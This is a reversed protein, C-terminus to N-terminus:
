VRFVPKTVTHAWLCVPYFGYKEELLNFTVVNDEEYRNAGERKLLDQRLRVHSCLHWQNGRRAFRTRSERTMREAREKKTARGETNQTYEFIPTFQAMKTPDKEM